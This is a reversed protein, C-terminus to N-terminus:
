KKLLRRMFEEKKNSTKVTNEKKLHEQKVFIITNPELDEKLTVHPGVISNPGIKVGPMLSANIGIKSDEGIIAGLKDLKTDIKEGKVNVKINENDFRLNGTVTGAGFSCNNSIISDGIYNSHFWCNNAIYSHKIESSFGVV